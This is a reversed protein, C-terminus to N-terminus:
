GLARLSVVRWRYHTPGEWPRPFYRLLCVSQCESNEFELSGSLSHVVRLRSFRPSDGEAINRHEGRGVTVHLGDRFRQAFLAYGHLHGHDPKELRGLHAKCSRAQAAQVIGGVGDGRGFDPNQAGTLLRFNPECVPKAPELSLFLVPAPGLGVIRDYRADCM